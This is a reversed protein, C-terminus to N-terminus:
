RRKRKLKRYETVLNHDLLRTVAQVRQTEKYEDHPAQREITANRVVDKIQIEIPVSHKVKNPLEVTVEVIIHIIETYAKMSRANSPDSLEKESTFDKTSNADTIEAILEEAKQTDSLAERLIQEDILLNKGQGIRISTGSIIASDPDFFMKYIMLLSDRKSGTLITMGIGDMISRADTEPSRLLKLITSERSKRRQFVRHIVPGIDGSRNSKFTVTKRGDSTRREPFHKEILREITSNAEDLISLNPDKNIYDIVAAIRLLACAQKINPRTTKGQELKGSATKFIRYIDEIGNTANLSRPLKESPKRAVVTTFFDIAERLVRYAYSRGKKDNIDIGHRALEYRIQHNETLGLTVVDLMSVSMNERLRPLIKEIEAAIIEALEIRPDSSKEDKDVAEALLTKNEEIVGFVTNELTNIRDTARSKPMGGLARAMRAAPAGANMEEVFESFESPM